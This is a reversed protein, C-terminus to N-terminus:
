RAHKSSKLKRKTFLNIAMWITVPLELFFLLLIFGIFIFSVLVPTKGDFASIYLLYVSFLCACLIFLSLVLELIRRVKKDQLYDSVTYNFRGYKDRSLIDTAKFDNRYM